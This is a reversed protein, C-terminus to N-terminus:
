LKEENWGALEVRGEEQADSEVGDAGREVAAEAIGEQEIGGADHLVEVDDPIDINAPTTQTDTGTTVTGKEDRKRTLRRWKTLRQMAKDLQVKKRMRVVLLIGLFATQVIGEGATALPIALIVHTGALLHILSFLLSWRVLVGLISAALPPKADKLAYFVVALLAAITVGPLAVDYGFLATSTLTVAHNGFAGHHFLLTILLRGFAALFLSAAVSLVLGGIMVKLLVQRLREYRSALVLAAMIPLAAQGLAGGFLTQPFAFFLQANRAAALSAREPIYSIFATDVTLGIASIAVALVNPGLLRLMDRLAPYRVDWFFSYRVGQKVLGPAMVAVQIFASGVVGWAPGYVGIKPFAMACLLGIIIGVDYLAISLAPLIFQRKSNLITTAVTGLGLILTQLLMVRTLSATLAQEAPPFGPVLLHTVFFPAILEGLLVFASLTVLLVNFILSALRWAERQGRQEEHSLLVPIMAHVLAGGAILDFLTQPFSIAAFYANAEPGVGFVANFLVQRLAGLGRSTCYAAILLFAAETISFRRLSLAGGGPLFRRPDFRFAGSLWRERRRKASVVGTKAEAPRESVVATAQKAPAEDSTRLIGAKGKEDTFISVM